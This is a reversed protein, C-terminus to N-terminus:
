LGFEALLPPKPMRWTQLKLRQHTSLPYVWQAATMYAPDQYMRRAVRWFILWADVAACERATASFLTPRKPLAARRRELQQTVEACFLEQAGEHSAYSSILRLGPSSPPQPADPCVFTAPTAVRARALGICGM